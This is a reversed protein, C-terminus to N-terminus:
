DRGDRGQWREEVEREWRRGGGREREPVNSSCLHLIVPYTFGDYYVGKICGTNGYICRYAGTICTYVVMYLWIYM